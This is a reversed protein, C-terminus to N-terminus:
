RRGLASLLDEYVAIQRKVIVTWAFEQEVIVRSHHGLEDLHVGATATEVLAAGLAEADDPEVLWGNTGPRVKDPLGGARTAVIPRSHGM